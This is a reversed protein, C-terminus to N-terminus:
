GPLMLSSRLSMLRIASGATVAMLDDKGVVAGKDPM